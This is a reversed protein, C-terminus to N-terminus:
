DHTRARAHTSRMECESFWLLLLPPASARGLRFAHARIKSALDAYEGRATALSENVLRPRGVFPSSRM